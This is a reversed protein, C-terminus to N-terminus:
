QLALKRRSVVREDATEVVLTYMGRPLTSVDINYTNANSPVPSAQQIRGLADYLKLTSSRDAHKTFELTVTNSAPNPYISVGSDYAVTANIGVTDDVVIVTTCYPINPCAACTDAFSGAVCVGYFGAEHFVINTQQASDNSIAANYPQTFYWHYGNANTASFLTPQDVYLTPGNYIATVNHNLIRAYDNVTVTDACGLSDTVTLSVNYHGFSNFVISTTDSPVIVATTSPAVNWTSVLVGNGSSCNSLLLMYPLACACTPNVNDFCATAASGNSFVSVTDASTCGNTDTATVSYTGPLLSDIIPAVEGTSWTFVITPTGFAANGNVIGNALGCSANVPVATVVVPPTAPVSVGLTDACGNTDSVTVHYIGHMLDALDETTAGNSWLFQYPATGGTVALDVLGNSLQCTADTVNTASQISAPVDVLISASATAGTQDTVTVSITGPCANVLDETTSGDAWIFTYPPIGNEVTLNVNATCAGCPTPNSVWYTFSLASASFSICSLTLIFILQKM